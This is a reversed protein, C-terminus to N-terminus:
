VLSIFRPVNDFSASLVVLQNIFRIYTTYTYLIFLLSCIVYNIKTVSTKEKYLSFSLSLQVDCVYPIWTLSDLSLVFSQTKEARKGSEPFFFCVLCYMKSLRSVASSGNAM